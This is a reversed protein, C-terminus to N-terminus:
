EKAANNLKQIVWPSLKGKAAKVWAAKDSSKVRLHLHADAKDDKVANKNGKNGHISFAERLAPVVAACVSEQDDSWTGDTLCHMVDALESHKLLFSSDKGNRVDEIFGEIDFNLYGGAIPLGAININDCNASYNIYNQM